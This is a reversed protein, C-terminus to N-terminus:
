PCAPAALLWLQIVSAWSAGGNITLTINSYLGPTVQIDPLVSGPWLPVSYTAAGLPVTSTSTSVSFMESTEPLADSHIRVASIMVPSPFTLTIWGTETGPTWDTTPDGDIAAAPGHTSDLSTSATAITGAPVGIGPLDVGQCGADTAHTGADIADVGGADTGVGAAGGFGGAAGGVGVGAAGGVGRGAAGGIGGTGGGAGAVGGAGTTGGVGATGTAGAVSGAAGGAGGGKGASGTKGASGVGGAGGGGTTTGSGGCGVLLAVLAFALGGRQLPRWDVVGLSSTKFSTM